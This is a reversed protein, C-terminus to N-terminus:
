CYAFPCLRRAQEMPSQLATRDPVRPDKALNVAIILFRGELWKQPAVTLTSNLNIRVLVGRPNRPQNDLHEQLQAIAAKLQRPAVTLQARAPM